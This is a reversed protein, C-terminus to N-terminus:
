LPELAIQGNSTVVLLRPGGAGLTGRVESPGAVTTALPLGSVTVRGNSTRAEITANISSALRLRVAGNSTTIRADAELARLEAEIAGNSTQLRGITRTGALRIAGNSTGADVTGDCDRVEIAGNSTAVEIRALSRPVDVEYRAQPGALGLGAAPVTRVTMRDGVVEISVNEVGRGNLARVRLDARDSGTVTVAGNQNELAFAALGSAPYVADHVVPVTPAVSACGAALATCLALALIRLITTNM